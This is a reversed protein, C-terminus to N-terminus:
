FLGSVGGYWQAIPVGALVGAWAGALLWPGFPITSRRTARGLALLTVGAVGGLVFGALGGVALPGWGLWGLHLGVLGAVKVDGGGMGDPRLWRLLRYFGYLALMGAGARLLPEWGAGLLAALGLLLAGVLYGPLVIVDPLRRTDLDILALVVSSAALCWFAAWVLWGAGAPLTGPGPVVLPVLAFLVGTAAEVIAYRVPIPAACAACRGRLVVWGLVPVNHWPRISADCHPCRSERLLSVGAPVRYAVVNLFSGIVLGFAGALLAVVGTAAALGPMM